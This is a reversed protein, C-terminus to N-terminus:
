SAGRLKKVLAGAWPTWRQWGGNISFWEWTATLILALAAGLAM